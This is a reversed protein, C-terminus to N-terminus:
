GSVVQFFEGLTVSVPEEAVRLPTGTAPVVKAVWAFRKWSKELFYRSCNRGTFM